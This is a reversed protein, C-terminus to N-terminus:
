LEINCKKTYAKPTQSLAREFSWGHNYVRVTILSASLGTQSAWEQITKGHFRITNRRNRNQTESNTWRCNSPEYDGNNDIRDITLTEEYGNSLSWNHFAKFSARWEPCVKIGRGGYNENQPACRTKMGRWVRHLRANKLRLPGTLLGHRAM